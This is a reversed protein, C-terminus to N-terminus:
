LLLKRCISRYKWKSERWNNPICYQDELQHREAETLLEAEDEIILQYNTEENMRTIPEAHVFIPMLLLLLFLVIKKRM